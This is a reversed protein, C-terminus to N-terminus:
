PMVGPIKVQLSWGPVAAPEDFKPEGEEMDLVPLVFIVVVLLLNPISILVIISLIILTLYFKWGLIGGPRTPPM